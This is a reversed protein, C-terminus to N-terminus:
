AAAPQTALARPLFDVNTRYDYILQLLASTRV